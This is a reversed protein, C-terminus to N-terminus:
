AYMAQQLQANEYEIPYKQVFWDILAKEAIYNKSLCVQIWFIDDLPFTKKCNLMSGYYIGRWKILNWYTTAHVILVDSLVFDFM